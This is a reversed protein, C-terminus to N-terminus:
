RSRYALKQGFFEALWLHEVYFVLFVELTKVVIPVRVWLIIARRLSVLFSVLRQAGDRSWVSPQLWIVTAMATYIAEKEERGVKSTKKTLQSVTTRGRGLRECHRATVGLAILM